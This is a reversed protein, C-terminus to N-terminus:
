TVLKQGKRLGTLVTQPEQLLSQATVALGCAGRVPSHGMDHPSPLARWARKSVAPVGPGKPKNPYRRGLSYGM